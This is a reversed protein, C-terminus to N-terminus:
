ITAEGKIVGTKTSSQVEIYIDISQDKIKSLPVNFGECTSTSASDIVRATDIVSTNTGVLSLTCNGESIYQDINVRIVLNDNSVSAYTIAGSIVESDNPNDGSYQIVPEKEVFPEPSPETNEPVAPTQTQNNNAQVNVSTNNIEQSQDNKNFLKFALFVLGAVAALGFIVLIVPIIKNQKKKKTKM